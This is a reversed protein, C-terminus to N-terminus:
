EVSITLATTSRASGCPNCIAEYSGPEDFRLSFSHLQRESLVPTSAVADPVFLKAPGTRAYIAVRTLEGAKLTISDPSISGDGIFLDADITEASTLTPLTMTDGETAIIAGTPTAPRFLLLVFTVSLLLGILIGIVFDRM